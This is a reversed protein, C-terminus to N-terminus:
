GSLKGDDLYGGHTERGGYAALVLTRGGVEPTRAFAWKLARDATGHMPSERMIDTAVFGPNTTSITVKDSGPLRSSSVLSALERALLLQM